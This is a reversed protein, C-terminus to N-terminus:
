AVSSAMLPKVKTIVEAFLASSELANVGAFPALWLAGNAGRARLEDLQKAIVAPEAFWGPNAPANPDKWAPLELRGGPNYWNPIYALHEGYKATPRLGAALTRAM